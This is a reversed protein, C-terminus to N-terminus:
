APEHVFVTTAHLEYQGEPHDSVVQNWLSGVFLPKIEVCARLIMLENSSGTTFIQDDLGRVEEPTDACYPSLTGQLIANNSAFPDVSTMELAINEFCNPLALAKDCIIQKLLTHTWQAGDSSDYQDIRNMRVDQITEDLARELHAHNYAVIGIEVGFYTTMIFIPFWFVFEITAMGNENRRFRRLRKPLLGIM